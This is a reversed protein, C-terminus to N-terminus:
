NEAAKEAELREIYEQSKQVGSIDVGPFGQNDSMQKSKSGKNKSM